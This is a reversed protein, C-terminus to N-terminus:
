LIKMLKIMEKFQSSVVTPAPSMNMNLSVLLLGKYAYIVGVFITM